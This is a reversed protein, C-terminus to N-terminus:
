EGGRGDPPWIIRYLIDREELTDRCNRAANTFAAILSPAAHFRQDRQEVFGAASLRSLSDRIADVSPTDRRHRREFEFVEETTAGKRSGVIRLLVEVDARTVATSSTM